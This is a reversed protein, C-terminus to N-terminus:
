KTHVEFVVFISITAGELNEFTYDLKAGKPFDIDLIPSVLVDPGYISAPVKERTFVNDGIKWFFTSATFSAGDKRILHVRKILYDQDATWSGSVRTGTTISDHEFTRHFKFAM